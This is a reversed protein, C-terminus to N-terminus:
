KGRVAIRTVPSTGVAFPYAPDRPVRIRFSLRANRYNGIFRYRHQWRGHANARPNAFVQWHSNVLAQLQILKGAAPVHGGLLTGSFRVVAGVTVSRRSVRLTSKATVGLQLDHEAPRILPTGPYRVRVTRSIGGRTTHFSFAGNATTKVTRRQKIGAKPLRSKELIQLVTAPMAHGAADVLRGQVSTRAGFRVRVAAALRTRKRNGRRTIRAHGAFLRTKARVPLTIAMPTGDALATTSKENGAADVARGRLDYAGDALHEDPLTATLRGADVTAPISKWSDTAQPKIEISGSALGSTADSADIAITAPNAPDGPAFAATPAERDVRLHIPPAANDQTQNGAEDVLWVKLTFDGDTPTELGTLSTIAAGSKTGTTCATTDGPTPCVQWNAGAVQAGSVEPNTWHVSLSNTSHWGGGGDVALDQPAGPPTNDVLTTRSATGVNGAPDTAKITLQHQGDALGGTSVTFMAGGNPCPAPRTFDCANPSQAATQGDILLVSQQIGTNDSADFSVTQASRRWGAQWLGGSVSAVTPATNDEIRVTASSLRAIAELYNHDPSGSNLPCSDGPCYVSIAINSTHPVNIRENDVNWTCGGPTGVGCGRLVTQDGMLAARWRSNASYLDSSALLGVISTGAPATFLMRANVGGTVTGDQVANRAVLGSSPSGSGDCQAYATVWNSGNIEPTWSNNTGAAAACAPVDYTGAHAAAPAALALAITALQIARRTQNSALSSM